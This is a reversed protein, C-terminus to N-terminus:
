LPLRPEPRNPWTRCSSERIARSAPGIWFSHSGAASVKSGSAKEGPRRLEAVMAGNKREWGIREGNRRHCEPETRQGEIPPGLLSKRRVM